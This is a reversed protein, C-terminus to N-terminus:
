FCQFQYHLLIIWPCINEDSGSEMSAVSQTVKPYDDYSEVSCEGKSYIQLPINRKGSIIFYWSCWMLYQNQTPFRFVRHLEITPSIIVMLLDQLWLVGIISCQKKKRWQQLCSYNILIQVEVFCKIFVLTSTELAFRIENPQKIHTNIALNNGLQSQLGWKHNM